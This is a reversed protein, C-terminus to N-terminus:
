QNTGSGVVDPLKAFTYTDRDGQLEYLSNYNIERCYICLKYKHLSSLLMLPPKWSITLSNCFRGELTLSSPSEPRTVFNLKERRSITKLNDFVCVTSISVIYETEAKLVNLTFKNLITGAHKVTMEKKYQGDKSVLSLNYAKLHPHREPSIWKLDVSSMKVSEVCLNTVPEPKTMVIDFIPKQTEREGTKTILKILYAEGPNVGVITFHTLKSSLEREWSEDSLSYEDITEYREVSNSHVASTMQIQSLSSIKKKFPKLVNLINPDIMIVYKTFDGKPPEWIVEIENTSVNKIMGARPKEPGYPLLTTVIRIGKMRSKGIVCVITIIYETKGGNLDLFCARYPDDNELADVTKAKLTVSNNSTEAPYITVDYSDIVLGDINTNLWKEISAAFWTVNIRDEEM